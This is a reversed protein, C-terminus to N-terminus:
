MESAIELFESLNLEQLEKKIESMEAPDEPAGNLGLAELFEKEKIDGRLFRTMSVGPGSWSMGEDHWYSTELIEQAQERRNKKPDPRFDYPLFAEMELAPDESKEILTQVKDQYYLSYDEWIVSGGPQLLLGLVKRAGQHPKLCEPLWVVKEM